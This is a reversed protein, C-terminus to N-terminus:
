RAAEAAFSRPMPREPRVAAALLDALHQHAAAAGSHRAHAARARQQAAPRADYARDTEDTSITITRM